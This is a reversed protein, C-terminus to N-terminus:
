FGRVGRNKLFLCKKLKKQGKVDLTKKTDKKKVSKSEWFNLFSRARETYPPNKEKKNPCIKKCMGFYSKEPTLRAKYTM